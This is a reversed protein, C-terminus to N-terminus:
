QLGVREVLPRWLALGVPTLADTQRLVSHLQELREFQDHMHNSCYGGDDLGAQLCTQYFLVINAQAHFALLIRDIPRDKRALSSYHVRSDSGDDVPGLRAAIHFRQHSAEHVLMEAMGIPRQDDSMVIHGPFRYNSSSGQMGGPATTPTVYAVVGTVWDLYEPANQDILDGANVLLESFQEFCDLSHFEAGPYLTTLNPAALAGPVLSISGESALSVRPFTITKPPLSVALWENDNSTKELRISHSTANGFKLSADVADETAEVVGGVVNPILWRGVWLNTGSLLDFSWNGSVGDLAAMLGVEVIRQIADDGLGASTQQLCGVSPHWLVQSPFQLWDRLFPNLGPLQQELTQEEAELARRVVVSGDLRGIERAIATTDSAGPCAFSSLVHDM